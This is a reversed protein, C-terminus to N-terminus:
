PLYLFPEHALRVTASRAAGVGTAKDMKLSKARVEWLHHGVDCTSYTVQSYRSRQADLLEGRRATGNGRSQLLQYRVNDAIGHNAQTNGRLRDASLLEGAEQYRVNGQADYDTTIDNYDVRDARLLQDAREIRVSGSLRYVAQNSSDVQSAHVDTDSTERLTPDRSLAPDYFELMANPRCLAFNEPRPPCHFTGLPCAPESAPPAPATAQLPTTQAEATGGFLALAAAVALLRRPPLARLPTHSPTV